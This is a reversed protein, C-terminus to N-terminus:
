PSDTNGINANQDNFYPYPALDVFNEGSNWQWVLPNVPRGFLVFFHESGPPIKVTSEVYAGDGHKGLTDGSKPGFITQLGPTRIRFQMDCGLTNGNRTSYTIVQSGSDPKAMTANYKKLAKCEAVALPDVTVDDWTIDGEPCQVQADGSPFPLPMAGEPQKVTIAGAVCEFYERTPPLAIIEDEVQSEGWVPCITNAFAASPCDVFFFYPDPDILQALIDVEGAPVGSGSRPIPAQTPVPLNGCETPVPQQTEDLYGTAARSELRFEPLFSFGGATTYENSLSLGNEFTFQCGPDITQVHRFLSTSITEEGTRKKIFLTGTEQPYMAFLDYEVDITSPVGDLLITLTSGFNRDVEIPADSREGFALGQVVPGANGYVSLTEAATYGNIIFLFVTEGGSSDGCSTLTALLMAASALTTVRQRGFLFNM